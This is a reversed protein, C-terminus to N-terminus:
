PKTRYTARARVAADPQAVRVKIQHVAEGEDPKAPYYGLRYQKRLEDAILAFTQKLDTVERRYFRGATLESMATLYEAADEDMEQRRRAIIDPNPGRRRGLVGGFLRRNDFRLAGPKTTYLVSYVLTDSEELMNLLSPKSVYSGHDKGDTLLIVAKRGKVGAFLQAITERVSDRMVTGVYEGIKAGKIAKEVAKRDNTLPSLVTVEYDFSVVTARDAPQLQKIFDKAADKIKGLVDRASKSTDLLLAVNLPEEEAAFFSIAQPAGDQWLAFDEAKLNPIYRGQRDSVIVPVNVLTTRVKVVEDPGTEQALAGGAFLAALCVVVVLKM